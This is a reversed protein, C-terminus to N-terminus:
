LKEISNPARKVLLLNLQQIPMLEIETFVIRLSLMLYMLSQYLKQMALFLMVQLGLHIAKAMLVNTTIFFIIDISDQSLGKIKKAAEGGFTTHNKIINFEDDTLKSPKNIIEEPIFTKGIDHLLAGLGLNILEVKGYSLYIGCVLSLLCVNVSHELLYTDTQKIKTLNVTVFDKSLIEGILQNVVAKLKEFEVLENLQFKKLSKEMILRTEYITEEITIQDVSEQDLKPKTFDEVDYLIPVKKINMKEIRDITTPTLQLGESLLVNGVDDHISTGLTMGETLEDVSVEKRIQKM